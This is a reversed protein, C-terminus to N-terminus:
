VIKNRYSARSASKIRTTAPEILRSCYVKNVITEKKGLRAKSSEKIGRRCRTLGTM